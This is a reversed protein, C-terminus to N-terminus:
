GSVSNELLSDILLGFQELIDFSFILFGGHRSLLALDTTLFAPTPTCMFATLYVDHWFLPCLCEM